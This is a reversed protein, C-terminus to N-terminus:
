YGCHFDRIQLHRIRFHREAFCVKERSLLFVSPLWNCWGQGPRAIKAYVICIM